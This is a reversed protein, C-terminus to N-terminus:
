KLSRNIIAQNRLEIRRRLGDLHLVKAFQDALWPLLGFRRVRVRWRRVWDDLELWRTSLDGARKPPLGCSEYGRAVLMEGAVGEIWRQQNPTLATRWKFVQTPDVPGYTSTEHYRLMADTYPVGLRRCIEELAARPERVLDEFRLAYVREPPIASAVRDWLRELEDWTRGAAWANGSWGFEIWSRAVDRPDRVLHIYHAEPFLRQLRDFHRHVAVGVLNERSGGADRKMQDLFSRVLAPYPLAPDITCGHHRFHRDMSLWEYYTPLAPYADASPMCEVAFEFEGPFTIEPHNGLMLGLLSTGSRTTGVLFFTKPQQEGAM